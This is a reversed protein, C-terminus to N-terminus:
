RILPALAQARSLFSPLAAPFPVLLPRRCGPGPVRGSPRAEQRPACAVGTPAPDAKRASGRAGQRGKDRCRLRPVPAGRPGARPPGVRRRPLATSRSGTGPGPRPRSEQRTGDTDFPSRAAHWLVLRCNTLKGEVHPKPSSHFLFLCFPGRQPQRQWRHRERIQSTCVCGLFSCLREGKHLLLRAAAAPGGAAQRAARPLARGAPRRAGAPRPRWILGRGGPDWLRGRPRAARCM